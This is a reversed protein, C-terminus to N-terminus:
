SDPSPLQAPDGVFLVCKTMGSELHKKIFKYLTLGVMSSEDIILLDVKKKLKAKGDFELIYDVNRNNSPKQKLNLHSHITSFEVNRIGTATMMKSLVQLSKHTPTTAKIKLSETKCFKIIEAIITSKGTGAFGEISIIKNGWSNGSTIDLIDKVTNDFVDQQHPTLTIM